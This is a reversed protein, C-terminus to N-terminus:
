RQLCDRLSTLSRRLWTRMTNVPVGHRGALEQYSYGELYAGRVAEARETRLEELCNEIRAREATQIAAREPDPAPDHPEAIDDLAAQNPKRARLRDIAHNRAIAILWTMAGHGSGAYTASNHWIRVYIEQLADEADSRDRLLRVCVGFLKASTTTYLARFAGRDGSAIRGILDSLEDAM